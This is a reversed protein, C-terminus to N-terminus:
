KAAGKQAGFRRPTSVRDLLWVAANMLLIAYTVGEPYLGVSRFLVTLVGCGVGYLIQGKPTVPSTTYDTAMFTAGLLVGGSMLSYLMWILPANGQSFLLSLVAVTGLYAVPIRPSIVRRVMLFIGGLLLAPVCIEGISGGALGLFVDVRSAEPLYGQAMNHLPTATTVVDATHLNILPLSGKPAPFRTMHVPFLLLLLARAALAPNFINEGLGGCLGKVVITAFFGGFAAMGYPISAPLTLSLLLGTVAASGDTLTTPRHTLACLIAEGAMASLMCVITVLAARVGFAFVGAVVAPFLAILMDVM